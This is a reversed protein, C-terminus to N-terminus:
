EWVDDVEEPGALEDPEEAQSFGWGSDNEEGSSDDDLLEHLLYGYAFVEYPFDDSSASPRKRLGSVSSAPKGPRLLEASIARAAFFAVGVVVVAFLVRVWQPYDKIEGVTSICLASLCFSIVLFTLGFCGIRLCGDDEDHLDRRSM